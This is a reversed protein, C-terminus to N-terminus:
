EYHPLTLPKLGSTPEGTRRSKCTFHLSAGLNETHSRLRQEAVRKLRPHEGYHHRGTIPLFGEFILNGAFYSVVAQTEGSMLLSCDLLAERQAARHLVSLDM